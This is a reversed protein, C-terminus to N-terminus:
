NLITDIKEDELKKVILELFLLMDVNRSMPILSIVLKLKQPEM